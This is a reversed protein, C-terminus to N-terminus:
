DLVCERDSCGTRWRAGHAVGESSIASTLGIAQVISSSTREAMTADADDLLGDANVDTKHRVPM